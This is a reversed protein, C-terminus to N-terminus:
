GAAVYIRSSNTTKITRRITEDSTSEVIHLAVADDALLQMTWRARGQPPQRCALATLKAEAEGDHMLQIEKVTSASLIGLGLMCIGLMVLGLITMFDRKISIFKSM